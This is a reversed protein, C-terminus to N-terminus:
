SLSRSTKLLILTIRHQMLSNLIRRSVIKLCIWKSYHFLSVELVAYDVNYFLYKQFSSISLYYILIIENLYRLVMTYVGYFVM